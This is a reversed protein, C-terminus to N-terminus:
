AARIKDLFGNAETRLDDAQRAMDNASSLVESSASGTEEVAGSVSSISGNVQNTSTAALEANRSIENTAAGQEEIAAAIGSSIEDMTSITKSIGAIADAAESTASQIAGIQAGIEETAKATQNALNKVESAVVAFGKGADGARAAEITANLALLNTQEAIDTILNIVEGVKNAADSLGKVKANTKEAESVADSAIQTSRTVQSSIETISASLEEAATAVAQVSTSASESAGTVKRAEANAQDANSSMGQAASQLQGASTSVTSILGGVKQDFENALSTREQARQESAQREAEIQNQQLAEMEVAREQFVGMTRALTGIESQDDTHMVEIDHDGEALKEMNRTISGLPGTIGRAILIAIVALVVLIGLTVGGLTMMYQNFAADVDDLYIGSGVIWQWPGYGKVYSIKPVPNEFGPKPWLYDVFGAGDAKVVKVFESFLAKGGKDKFESLDKGDLQPKIPHMVIVANYDNIWAYEVKDYRLDKIALRAASQAQDRTMRGEAEEKGYHEIISHAAEIIHKTKVKRSELLEGKQVVLAYSTLAVLGVVAMIVMLFLRISINLNRM